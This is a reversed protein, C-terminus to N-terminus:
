QLHPCAFISADVICFGFVVGVGRVVGVLVCCWLGCLGCCWSGNVDVDISPLLPMVGLLRVARRADKGREWLWWLVVFCEDMIVVTKRSSKGPLQYERSLLHDLRM